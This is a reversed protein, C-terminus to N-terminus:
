NLLYKNRSRSCEGGFADNGPTFLPQRNQMTAQELDRRFEAPLELCPCNERIMIMKNRLRRLQFVVRPAERSHEAQKM